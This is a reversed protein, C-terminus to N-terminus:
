ILEYKTLVDRSVETKIPLLYNNIKTLVGKNYLQKLKNITLFKSAISTDKIRYNKYDSIAFLIQEKYGQRFDLVNIYRKTIRGNVVIRLRHPINGSLYTVQYEDFSEIKFLSDEQKYKPIKVINQM